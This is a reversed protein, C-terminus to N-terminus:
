FFQGRLSLTYFYLLRFALRLQCLIVLNNQRKHDRHGIRRVGQRSPLQKGEDQLSLFSCVESNAIFPQPTSASLRLHTIRRVSQSVSQNLSDDLSCIADAHLRPPGHDFPSLQRSASLLAVSPCRDPHHYVTNFNTAVASFIIIGPLQHNFSFPPNFSPPRNPKSPLFDTISSRRLRTGNRLPAILLNFHKLLPPIPQYSASTPM